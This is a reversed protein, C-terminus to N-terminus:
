GSGSGSGTGASAAAGAATGACVRPWPGRVVLFFTVRGLTALFDRASFSDQLWARRNGTGERLLSLSRSTRAVETSSDTMACTGSNPRRRVAPNPAGAPRICVKM